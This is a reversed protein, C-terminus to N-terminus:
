SLFKQYVPLLIEQIQEDWTKNQYKIQFLNKQESLNLIQLIFDKTHDLYIGNKGLIAQNTQNNFVLINKGTQMYLFLKGHGETLDKKPSILLDCNKLYNLSDEYKIKGLFLINKELKKNKVVTIFKKDVPYGMIHFIIKPNKLVVKQAIELLTKAGKYTQLGGLYGVTFNKKSTTKKKSTKLYSSFADALYTINKKRIKLLDQFYNQSSVLLFDSKKTVFNELKKFIKKFFLSTLFQHSELELSLSGQVDTIIPIKKWLLFRAIYAIFFGEHLHAHILDVKNSLLYFSIKIILLFDLFIKTFSPGPSKKQYWPFWFKSLRYINFDGVDRGLHYTFLNIKLGKKQLAQAEELIRVHCGRDSFYPTPAIILIKIKSM